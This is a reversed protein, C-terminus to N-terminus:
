LPRTRPPCCAIPFTCTRGARARAREGERARRGIRDVSSNAVWWRASFRRSGSRDARDVETRNSEYPELSESVVLVGPGSNSGGRITVPGALYVREHNTVLTPRSVSGLRDAVARVRRGAKPGEILNGDEDYLWTSDEIADVSSEVAQTPTNKGSEVASRTTQFRDELTARVNSKTAGNLSLVVTGIMAGMALATVLATTWIIRARLGRGRASTLINM